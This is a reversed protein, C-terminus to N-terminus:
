HFCLDLLSDVNNSTLHLVDTTRVHCPHFGPMSVYMDQIYDNLGDLGGPLSAVLNPHYTVEAVRVNPTLRAAAMIVNLLSEKVMEIDKYGQHNVGVAIVICEPQLQYSYM